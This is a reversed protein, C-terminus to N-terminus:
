FITYITKLRTPQYGLVAKLTFLTVINLLKLRLMKKDLMFNSPVKNYPKKLTFQVIIFKDRQIYLTVTLCNVYFLGLEKSIDQIKMLWNWIERPQSFCLFTYCAIQSQLMREETNIFCCLLSQITKLPPSVVLWDQIMKLEVDMLDDYHESHFLKLLHDM